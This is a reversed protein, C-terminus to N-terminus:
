VASEIFSIASPAPWLNKFEVKTAEDTNPHRPRVSLWVYGLAVLKKGVTREHMSVVFTEELRRRLDVRRWRM